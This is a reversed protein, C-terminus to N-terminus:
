DRQRVFWDLSDATHGGPRYEAGVWGQYGLADLHDFLGGLNIDGSGPQHRGPADAFQIHGIISQLKELEAKLDDGMIHMHYLDYQLTVNELAVQELLSIAKISTDVLFGPVDVSNIPELTLGLGAKAFERGAYRLNKVLTQECIDPDAGAPLKGALCNCRPTGLHRAYIIAQMVSARFEAERGPLCAIGLDGKATDGAPLNHLAPTLGFEQLRGKIEDADFDYPSHYEVAAFGAGAALEFRDLFPVETWLYSLNAAFKPM